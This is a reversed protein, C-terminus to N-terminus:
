HGFQSEDSEERLVAGASWAISRLVQIRIGESGVWARWPATVEVAIQGEATGALGDVAAVSVGLDEVARVIRMLTAARAVQELVGESVPSRYLPQIRGLQRGYAVPPEDLALYGAPGSSCRVEGANEVRVQAPLNELLRPSRPAFYRGAVRLGSVVGRQVLEVLARLYDEPLVKSEDVLILIRM